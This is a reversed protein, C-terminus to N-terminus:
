THFFIASLYIKHRHCNYNEQCWLVCNFLKKGSGTLFSIKGPLAHALVGVLVM